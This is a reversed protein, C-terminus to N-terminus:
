LPLVLRKMLHDLTAAPDSCVGSHVPSPQVITSRPATLWHFRERMSYAGMPGADPGGRAIKAISELHSQVWGPDTVPCLAGLRAVDLAFRAELVDLQRCHILVGANIFEERDVRPVVRIVAYDYSVRPSPAGSM